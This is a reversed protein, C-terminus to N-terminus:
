AARACPFSLTAGVVASTDFLDVDAPRIWIVRGPFDRQAGATRPAADAPQLQEARQFGERVAIWQESASLPTEEPEPRRIRIHTM